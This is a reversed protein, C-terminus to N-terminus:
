TGDNPELGPVQDAAPKAPDPEIGRQLDGDAGPQAAPTPEGAGGSNGETEPKEPVASFENLTVKQTDTETGPKTSTETVARPANMAAKLWELELVAGREPIRAAPDTLTLTLESPLNVTRRSNEDLPVAIYVERVVSEVSERNVWRHVTHPVQETSTESIEKLVQVEYPVQERVEEYVTERVPIQQTVTQQEYRLRNVPVKEIRTVVEPKRVTVPVDRIEIAEETAQVSYPVRRTEYQRATETVTVPKYQRTVEPVYATSTQQQPVVVPLYSTQTQCVVPEKRVWHMGGRQWVQQGTVPDAIWGRNQWQLYPSGGGSVTAPQQVPVLSQSYVTQTQTVPRYTTVDEAQLVTREVPREVAVTEDRYETRTVPRQVVYRQQQTETVERMVTETVAREEYATEMVPREVTQTQSIIRERVVPVKRVSERYRTETTWKPRTTTVDRTTYSTESVLDQRVVPRTITLKVPVWEISAVVRSSGDIAQAPLVTPSAVVLGVVLSTFSTFLCRSRNLGSM